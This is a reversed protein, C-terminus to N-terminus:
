VYRHRGDAGVTLGHPGEIETAQYGVPVVARVVLNEGDFGLDYVEDASEAAVLFRYDVPAAPQVAPLALLAAAAIM